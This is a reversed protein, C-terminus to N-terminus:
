DKGLKEKAAINEASVVFRLLSSYTDGSRNTGLGWSRCRSYIKKYNDASIWAKILDLRAILEQAKAQRQANTEEEKAIGGAAEAKLEELRQTYEFKREADLGVTLYRKTASTALTGVARKLAPKAAVSLAFSGAAISFDKLWGSNEEKNALAKPTTPVLADPNAKINTVTNTARAEQNRAAIQAKLQANEARVTDLAAVKAQLDAIAAFAARQQAIEKRMEDSSANQLDYLIKAQVNYAIMGEAAVELRVSAEQAEWESRLTDQSSKWYRNVLGLEEDYKRELSADDMELVRKLSDLEAAFTDAVVGPLLGTLLKGARYNLKSGLRATKAGPENPAQEIERLAREKNAIREALEGQSYDGLTTGRVVARLKENLEALSNYVRRIVRGDERRFFVSKAM